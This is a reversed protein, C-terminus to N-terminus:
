STDTGLQLKDEEPRGGPPLRWGRPEFAEARGILEKADDDRGQEHLRGCVADLVKRATSKGQHRVIMPLSRVLEFPSFRDSELLALAADVYAGAAFCEVALDLWLTPEHTRLGEERTLDQPTVSMGVTRALALVYGRFAAAARSAEPEREPHDQAHAGGRLEAILACTRDSFRSAGALHALQEAAVLIECKLDWRADLAELSSRLAMAFARDTRETAMTRAKPAIGVLRDDSRERSAVAERLAAKIAGALADEEVILRGSDKM